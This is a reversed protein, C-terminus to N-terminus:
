FIFLKVKSNLYKYKKYNILYNYERKKFFVTYIETNLETKFLEM